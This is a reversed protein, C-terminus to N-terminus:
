LDDTITEVWLSDLDTDGVTSDIATVRAPFMECSRETEQRHREHEELPATYHPARNARLLEVAARWRWAVEVFAAVSSNFYCVAPHYLDPYHARLPVAVDATTMPRDRIGMVQGTGSVAGVRISLSSDFDAGYVGLLYLRQDATLLRREREGAVNPVLLPESGTQPAPRLLPGDPLGCKRLASRNSEPLRWRDIIAGAQVQARPEILTSLPADVIALM